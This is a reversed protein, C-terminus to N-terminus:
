STYVQLDNIEEKLLNISSQAVQIYYEPTYYAIYDYDGSTDIDLLNWGKSLRHKDISNSLKKRLLKVIEENIDDIFFLYKGNIDKLNKIEQM